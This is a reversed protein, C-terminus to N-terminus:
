SQQEPRCLHECECSEEERRSVVSPCASIVVAVAPPEECVAPRGECPGRAPRQPSPPRARAAVQTASRVARSRGRHSRWRRPARAADEADDRSPTTLPGTVLPPTSMDTASDLAGRSVDRSAPSTGPVMVGRPPAGIAGCCSGKPARGRPRPFTIDM